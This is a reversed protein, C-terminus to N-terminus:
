FLGFSVAVYPAVAGPVFGIETTFFARSGSNFKRSLVRLGVGGEVIPLVVNTPKVGYEKEYNINKTKSPTGYIFGVSVNTYFSVRKRPSAIAMWDVVPGWAWDVNTHNDTLPNNPPKPVWIFRMGLNHGWNDATKTKTFDPNTVIGFGAGLALIDHDANVPVAISARGIIYVPLRENDDIHDSTKAKPSNIQAKSGLPLSTKKACVFSSIMFTFLFIFVKSSLSSTNSHYQNFLLEEFSQTYHNPLHFMYSEKETIIIEYDVPHSIYRTM